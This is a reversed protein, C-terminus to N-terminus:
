RNDTDNDRISITSQSDLSQSLANFLARAKDITEDFEAEPSSDSVIGGGVRLYFTDEHDVITRITTSLTANGDFGFMGISGCYPGRRYTETEDIIEMSRPKPAGTLPGGPFVAAVIDAISADPKAEGKITSVLQMVESYREVTQYEPVELTGRRSVRGIDNRAIDVLMRHEALDKTSRRLEEELQEDEEPTEGRARTGGIPRTVLTDGRKKLLVQPNASVLNVTQFELLALYPAPNVKRLGDFVVTPPVEAPAVLRHSAITQFVDGKEIYEKITEVRDVFERKGHEIEFAIQKSSDISLDVSEESTIRGALEDISSRADAYTREPDVGVKPSSCITIETTGETRPEEWAAITEYKNVSLRPLNRDDITTDPLSELERAIDYSLWGVVGGPFPIECDGRVLQEGEVFASLQELSSEEGDEPFVQLSNTPEVGFYGWGSQGGTTPLYFGAQPRRCKLYAQYPDEVSVTARIPIRTEPSVESALECYRERAPNIEIAM